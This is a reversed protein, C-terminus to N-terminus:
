RDTWRTGSKRHIFRGRLIFGIGILLIILGSVFNIGRDIPLVAYFVGALVPLSMLVFFAGIIVASSADRADLSNPSPDSM